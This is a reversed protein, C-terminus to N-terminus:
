LGHLITHRGARQFKERVLDVLTRGENEAVSDAVLRNEGAEHAEFREGGGDVRHKRVRGGVSRVFRM